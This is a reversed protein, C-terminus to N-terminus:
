NSLTIIGAANWVLKYDGGNPAAPTTLPNYSLLVASGPAVNYFYLIAAFPQDGAALTPFTTDDADLKVLSSGGVATATLTALAVRAYGGNTCENTIDAMDEHTQDFVYTTTVLAVRIDSALLWPTTGDALQKLGKLYLHAM